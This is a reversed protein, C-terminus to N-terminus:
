LCFFCCYITNAKPTLETKAEIIGNHTKIDIGVSDKIIAAMADVKSMGIHKFDFAQAAINEEDVTDMDYAKLNIFGSKALTKLVHSGVSGIGYVEMNWQNIAEYPVLKEQRSLNLAM